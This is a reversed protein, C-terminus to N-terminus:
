EQGRRMTLSCVFFGWWYCSEMELEDFKGMLRPDAAESLKRKEWLGWVFDAVVTGGDEVPKRGTAVELVLIFM